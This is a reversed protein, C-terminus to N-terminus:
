DEYPPPGVTVDNLNKTQTSTGMNNFFWFPGGAPRPREQALVAKYEQGAAHFVFIGIFVLTWSHWHWGAIVFVASIIKGIMSAVRTAKLRGIFPSLWARLIRGGDMPFAPILNFVVWGLNAVALWLLIEQGTRTLLRAPVQRLALYFVAALLLSVAPGAAAMFFEDRPRRPITTMKAVGGIPLLLIESVPCGMRIAVLSHGLEHLTICAFMAVAITLGYVPSLDRILFPLYLLLTIHVKIPIGGVRIITYSTRM